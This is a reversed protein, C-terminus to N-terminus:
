MIKLRVTLSWLGCLWILTANLCAASSFHCLNLVFFVLLLPLPHHFVLIHNQAVRGTWFFQAALSLYTQAAGGKTSQLLLRVTRSVCRSLFGFQLGLIM